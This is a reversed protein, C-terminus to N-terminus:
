EQANANSPDSQLTIMAVTLRQRLEAEASRREKAKKVCLMKYFKICRWMKGFFNLNPNLNWIRQINDKAEEDKLVFASM